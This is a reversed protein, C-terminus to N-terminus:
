DQADERELPQLPLDTGDSGTQGMQVVGNRHLLSDFEVLGTWSISNKNVFSALLFFYPWSSKAVIPVPPGM